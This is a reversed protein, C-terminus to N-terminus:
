VETDLDATTANAGRLNPDRFERSKTNGFLVYKLFSIPNEKNFQRNISDVEAKAEMLWKQRRTNWNQEERQLREDQYRKM